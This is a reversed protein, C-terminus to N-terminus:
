QEGRQPPSHLFEEVRFVGDVTRRVQERSGQCADAVSCLFVVINKIKEMKEANTAKQDGATAKQDDALWENFNATFWQTLRAKRVDGELRSLLYWVVDFQEIIKWHMARLTLENIQTVTLAMFQTYMSEEGARGKWCSLLAESTQGSHKQLTICVAGKKRGNSWEAEKAKGMLADYAMERTMQLPHKYYCIAVGFSLTPELGYLNMGSEQGIKQFRQWFDERLGDLFAFLSAKENTEGKNGSLTGYLPAIFLMDDGGFYIPLGGFAKVKNTSAEGLRLLEASITRIGEEDGNQALTGLLTGICDGDAQVMAFYPLHHTEDKESEPGALKELNFSIGQLHETVFQSGRLRDSDLYDLFYDTGGSVEEDAFPAYKEQTDLEANMRHLPLTQAYETCSLLYIHRKLYSLCAALDFGRAGSVHVMDEALAQLAKDLAEDLMSQVEQPPADVSFFLRDSYLGAGQLDKGITGHCDNPSYFTVRRDRQLQMTMRQAIFSFMYSSTWIELQRRAKQMVQYIPGLTCGVYLKEEV